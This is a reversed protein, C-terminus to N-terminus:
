IEVIGCIEVADLSVSTGSDEYVVEVFNLNEDYRLVRKNYFDSVLLTGANGQTLVYSSKSIRGSDGINVYGTTVRCIWSGVIDQKVLYLDGNTHKLNGLYRHDGEGAILQSVASSFSATETVRYLNNVGLINLGSILFDGSILGRSIGMPQDNTDGLAIDNNYKSIVLSTTIRAISLTRYDHIGTVYLDSTVTDYFIAFPRGVQASVNISAVFTMTTPDLKVIRKNNNDCVYLYTGDTAIGWPFNLGTNDTKSTQWTGFHSEYVGSNLRKLIHRNTRQSLYIM